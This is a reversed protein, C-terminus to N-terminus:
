EIIDKLDVGAPFCYDMEHDYFYLSGMGDAFFINGYADLAIPIPTLENRQNMLNGMFNKYVSEVSLEDEAATLPLVADICMDQEELKELGQKSFEYDKSYLMRVSEAIQIGTKGTFEQVEDKDYSFSLPNTNDQMESSSSQQSIRYPTKHYEAYQICGGAHPVTAQHDSTRVLQMTCSGTETSYDYVHHWVTVRAIHNIGTQNEAIRYDYRRRGTLIIRTTPPNLNSFDPSYRWRGNRRTDISIIPSPYPKSHMLSQQDM